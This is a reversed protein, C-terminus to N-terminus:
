PLGRFTFSAIMNYFSTHFGLVASAPTLNTINFFFACAADVTMFIVNGPEEVGVDLCVNVSINM